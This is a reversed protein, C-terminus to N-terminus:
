SVMEYCQGFCCWGPPFPREGHSQVIAFRQHHSDELFTRRIAMWELLGASYDLVWGIAAENNDSSVAPRDRGVLALRHEVREHRRLFLPAFTPLSRGKM